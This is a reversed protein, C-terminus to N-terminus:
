WSRIARGRQRRSALALDEVSGAFHARAGLPALAAAFGGLEPASLLWAADAVALAPALQDRHVGLKM